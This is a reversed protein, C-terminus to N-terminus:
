LGASPAPEAEPRLGAQLARPLTFFFTAGCGLQSEVWLRGAHAEIIKKCIALGAGTGEYDARHHLRRFMGFIQEHYQPDIGIGNDRVFLTEFQSEPEGADPQLYGVVVQPRPSTNYKLGNGILNSLLETLRQPDGAILPCNDLSADLCVTAERRQILDRLDRVVTAFAQRLDVPRPTSIVRGVQSLLLLDSILAGLRRSAEVLHNIFDQGDPGLQSGYDAALFTSFAELTRLPEKLDHSVVYTFQDLEQNTRRLQENALELEGGKAILAHLLRNRETVDQAASRSRVFQDQADQVPTTRIWVDIVSGDKKVWQAEIENPQRYAAPNDLFLAQSPPALICTYPRGILDERNYGLARMMTENCTAFRGHPDLNFYMVPAHHYLDRYGEKLRELDSNIRRLRDNAEALAQSRAQLERETRVKDSIDLLHCRLHLPVGENTYRTLIDMQLHREHVALRSDTGPGAEKGLPPPVLVRFTINHGEGDHLADHLTRVLPAADEPHVVELFPRASLEPMTRGLFRQLAPTAAMWHLNPALRAVLRESSRSFDVHRQVFSFSYGKEVGAREQYARLQDHAEQIQVLDRLAQLYSNLLGTLPRRVADLALGSTDASFHRELANPSPNDRLAAIRLALEDVARQCRRRAVWAAATAAGGTLVVVVAAAELVPAASLIQATVAGRLTLYGAFFVGALAAGAAICGGLIRWHGRRM